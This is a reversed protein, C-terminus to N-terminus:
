SELSSSANHLERTFRARIEIEALKNSAFISAERKLRQAEDEPLAGLSEKTHGKGKLYEEILCKELLAHIEEEAERLTTKPIEKTPM